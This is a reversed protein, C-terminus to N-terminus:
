SKKKGWLMPLRIQGALEKSLRDRENQYAQMDLRIKDLSQRKQEIQSQLTKL